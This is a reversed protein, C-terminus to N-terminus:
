YEMIFRLVYLADLKGIYIDLGSVKPMQSTAESYTETFM